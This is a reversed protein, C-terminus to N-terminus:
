GSAETRGALAVSALLAAWTPLKIAFWLPDPTSRQETYVRWEDQVLATAAIPHSSTMPVPLHPPHIEFFYIALGIAGLAIAAPWAAVRLRWLIIGCCLIAALFLQKFSWVAIWPVALVCLAIAYVTRVPERACLAFVLLAPIAFCLEEAHVYTGGIVACFAPVLVLLERRKLSRAMRQALWLGVGFLALYSLVGVVNAAAGPAGAHALAYTLSYQFPFHIESLAQAPVVETAYQILAPLGVIEIALVALLAASAFVAWRARPVFVLTAVIVPLGVLPEIATLVALVGSLYDRGRILTLGCLVLALLAFPVIQGTNLEVYGTSLLLAAVALEIPIGLGGLAVACLSVSLAIAAADVIRAEEFPLRALAMFPPFDYAPLPAPVAVASNRAFLRGRFTDATNVREECSHLPEYLYPSARADLAAGACYFDPFDDMTRWPFSDGLKSFDRLALVVLIATLALWM